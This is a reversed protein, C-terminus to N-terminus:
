LTSPAGYILGHAAENEFELGVDTLYENEEGDVDPNQIGERLMTDGGAHPRYKMHNFDFVFAFGGHYPGILMPHKILGLRGHSTQVFGIKLGLNKDDTTYQIKNMWWTDFLTAWSPAHVLYKTAEGKQVYGGEGEAMVAELYRNFQEFTPIQGNLDWKNTRIFFEAGGSYTEEKGNAGTRKFRRGFLLVREIDQAHKTTQWDKETRPDRGGFLTTNKDRRTYGWATRIIQTYNFDYVEAISKLAGKGSGDEFASSQIEIPDGNDMAQPNSLRVITLADTAVSAVRFVERTRLNMVVYNAGFRAGEGAPVNLTTAAASIGAGDAVSSLRPYEDKFLWGFERQTAEKKGRIAKTFVTVPSANPRRFLIENKVDPVVRQAVIQDVSRQGTQVSPPTPIGPTFGGM